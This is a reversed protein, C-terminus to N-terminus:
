EGIDAYSKGLPTAEVVIRSGPNVPYLNLPSGTLIVQDKRLWLGFRALRGALWRLSEVPCVLSAAQEVAGVVTENIRIRLSRAAQAMDAGPTEREALVFGAHIGNSAILWVGPRWADPVVYHHLEIVPFVEAIAQQCDEASDPENPLDRALRVALEGEVALNAYRSCPLRVGTSHCETDFLRGFIPGDVGLQAQIPKSTCGVKYGIVREGRQERLRTIETQLAYADATTLDLSEGLFQGPTRADFDALMGRALKQLDNVM